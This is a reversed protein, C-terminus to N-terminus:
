VKESMVSTTVSLSVSERQQPTSTTSLNKTKQWYRKYQKNLNPPLSDAPDTAQQEVNTDHYVQAYLRAEIEEM